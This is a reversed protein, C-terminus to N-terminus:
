QCNVNLYKQTTGNCINKEEIKEISWGENPKDMDYVEQTDRCSTRSNVDSDTGGRVIVKRGEVFLLPKVRLDNMTHEFLRWSGDLLSLIQCTRSQDKFGLGGCFWVEDEVQIVGYDRIPTDLDALYTSYKDTPCPIIVEVMGTKGM